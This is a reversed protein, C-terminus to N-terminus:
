RAESKMSNRKESHAIQTKNRTELMCSKVELYESGEVQQMNNAAYQKNRAVLKKSSAAEQKSNAIHQKGKKTSAVHQM